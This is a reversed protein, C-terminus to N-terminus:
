PTPEQDGHLAEPPHAGRRLDDIVDLAQVLLLEAENEPGGRARIATAVFRARPEDAWVIRAARREARKADLAIGAAELAEANIAERGVPAPASKLARIAHAYSRAAWIIPPGVPLCNAAEELAADRAERERKLSAALAERLRDLAVRLRGVEGVYDYGTGGIM